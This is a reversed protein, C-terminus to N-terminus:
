EPQAVAGKPVAIDDKTGKKKDPGNSMITV